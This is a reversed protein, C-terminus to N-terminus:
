LLASGPDAFFRDMVVMKVILFIFKTYKLAYYHIECRGGVRGEGEGEGM